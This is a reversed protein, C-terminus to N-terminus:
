PVSIQCLSTYLRDCPVSHWQQSIDKRVVCMIGAKYNPCAGDWNDYTIMTGDAWIYESQSPDYFRSLGIYSSSISPFLANLDDHKEVSDIVVLSGHMQSCAAEAETWNRMETVFVYCFTKASNLFCNPVDEGYVHYKWGTAPTGTELFSSTHLRCKKDVKNYGFTKCPQTHGCQVSCETVTKVENIVRLLNDTYVQGTLNTVYTSLQQVIIGNVVQLCFILLTWLVSLELSFKYNM